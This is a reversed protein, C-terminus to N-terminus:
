GEMEIFIQNLEELHNEDLKFDKTIVGEELFLVRNAVHRIFEYDHSIVLIAASQKLQHLEKSVARMMMVDLGSTPEDFIIIRHHNVIAMAIQLRQKQGGSLEFPHKKELQKLSLTTLAYEIDEELIPNSALTLEHRVSSGFLQFDADQMIFFPASDMEVYGNKAKLLGTVLKALTTKGVGNKGVLAVIDNEYLEFDVQKLVNAFALNRCKLLCNRNTNEPQFPINAEFLNFNRTDYSSNIFENESSFIILRGNEMLFIRNILGKLYYFRHDAIIVTIGKQQLRKIVKALAITHHYDLNASPEDFLLLQPSLVQASALALLQREGSSLEYIDRNLLQELPYEQTLRSIVSEMEEKTYGYNEMPFVLEATTNTTFFQSRPNQFVSAEIQNLDCMTSHPISKENLKIEGTLKGEILHPIIGNICKLLTSKGSGSNGTLLIVEGRHIEFNIGILSKEQSNPYQFNLNKARVICM